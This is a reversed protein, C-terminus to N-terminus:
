IDSWLSHIAHKFQYVDMAGYHTLLYDDNEKFLIVPVSTINAPIGEDEVDCIKLTVGPVELSSFMTKVPGCSTCWPATVLIIERNM